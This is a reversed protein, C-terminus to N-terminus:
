RRGNNMILEKIKYMNYFLKNNLISLTLTLKEKISIERNKIFKFYNKQSERNLVKLLSSKNEINSSHISIYFSKILSCLQAESKYYLETLEHQIFYEIREKLAELADLRKINFNSNMISGERQRYYYIPINTDIIINAKHLIKYTTFEDENIKGKPFRIGNFLERKYIKNWVIVTKTANYGYLNHLIEESNYKTINELISKEIRINEDYSEIYDGQVIDADNKIAINYLTEFMQLDVWDDSDIFSIYKGKAIDIGTNRADSLGGNKKHIVKIRNDKLGYEDCIVGSKDTSGDDVLIIEIDKLTQGILSDICKHLYKEVNYIPVIVSILLEKVEKNKM